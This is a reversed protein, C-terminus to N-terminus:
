QRYLLSFDIVVNPNISALKALEQLKDVSDQLGFTSANVILPKTTAVLIEGNALRTVRLDASLEHTMSHLSVNAKIERVLSEGTQLQAFENAGLEVSVELTPFDTVQFVIDRMRENRIDVNTEVSALDISLTALGHEAITGSLQKFSNVESIAAAKSTVYHFSSADNDLTWDAQVSGALMLSAVGTLLRRM